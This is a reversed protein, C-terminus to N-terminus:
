RVGNEGRPGPQHEPLKTVRVKKIRRGAVSLVKLSIGNVRVNDGVSPIRGLENIILGGV